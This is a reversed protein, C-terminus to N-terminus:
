LDRLTGVCSLCNNQDFDAFCQQLPGTVFETIRQEDKQLSGMLELARL